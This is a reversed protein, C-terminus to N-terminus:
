SCNPVVTPTTAGCATRKADVPTKPPIPCHVAPIHECVTTGHYTMHWNWSRCHPDFGCEAQCQTSTFAAAHSTSTGQGHTKMAFGSMMRTVNVSHRGPPPPSPPSPPLPPSPPSPPPTPIGDWKVSGVGGSWTAVTGSAFTRTFTPKSTTGNTTVKAPGSPLGLKNAQFAGYGNCLLFCGPEAAILFAAVKTEDCTGATSNDSPHVYDNSGGVIIYKYNKLGASVDQILEGPDLVGKDTYILNGGHPAPRGPKQYKALFSGNAGVLDAAEALTKDKAAMYAQAHAPTVETNLDQVKGNRSARCSTPDTKNCRLGYESYCDAYVGDASGNVVLRSIVDLYAQRGAPRSYDFFYSPFIGPDCSEMHVNGHVDLVDNDLYREHARDFPWDYVSNHFLM